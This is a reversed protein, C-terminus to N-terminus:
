IGIVRYFYAFGYPESFKAGLKNDSSIAIYNSNYLGRLIPIVSLTKNDNSPRIIVLYIDDKILEADSYFTGSSTATVICEFKLGLIDTM